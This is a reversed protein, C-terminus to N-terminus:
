QQHLKPNVWRVECKDHKWQYVSIYIYTAGVRYVNGNDRGSGKFCFLFVALPKLYM